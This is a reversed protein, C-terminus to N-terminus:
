HHGHDNDQKDTGGVPCPTVLWPTLDKNAQSQGNGNGTGKFSDFFVDSQECIPNRGPQVTTADSGSGRGNRADTWLAAGQEFGDFGGKKGLIPNTPGPDDCWVGM